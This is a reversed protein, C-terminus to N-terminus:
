ASCQIGNQNLNSTVNRISAGKKLRLAAKIKQQFDPTSITAPRESRQKDEITNRALVRKIKTM